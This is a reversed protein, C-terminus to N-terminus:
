ASPDDASSRTLSDQEEAKLLRKGFTQGSPTKQAARSQLSDHGGMWVFIVENAQIIKTLTTKASIEKVPAKVKNKFSLRNLWIRM